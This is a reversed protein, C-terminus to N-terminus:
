ELDDRHGCDPTAAPAVPFRPLRRLERAGACATFRHRAASGGPYAPNMLSGQGELIIVDPQQEKWASWVAHEIEGAMFDSVLSDVVTGYRIGQLWSTQGTGILETTIGTSEFADILKV